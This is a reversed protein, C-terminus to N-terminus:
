DGGYYKYGFTEAYEKVVGLGRENALDLITHLQKKLTAPITGIAEAKIRGQETIMFIVHLPDRNPEEPFFLILDEIPLGTVLRIGLEVMYSKNDYAELTYLAENTINFTAKRKRVFEGKGDKIDLGLERFWQLLQNPYIIVGEKEADKCLRNVSIRKERPGTAYRVALSEIYEIADDRRKFKELFLGNDRRRGGIM